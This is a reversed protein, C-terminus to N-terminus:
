KVITPGVSNVPEASYYADLMRKLKVRQAIVKQHKIACSDPVPFPMCEVIIQELQSLKAM